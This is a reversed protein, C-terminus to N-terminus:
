GLEDQLAEFSLHGRDEAVHHRILKVQDGGDQLQHTQVPKHSTRREPVNPEEGGNAKGQHSVGRHKEALNWVAAVDDVDGVYDYARPGCPKEELVSAGRDRVDGGHDEGALGGDHQIAGPEGVDVVHSRPRRDVRFGIRAPEIREGECGEEGGAHDHAAEPEQHGLEAPHQGLLRAGIRKGSGQVASGHLFGGEALGRAAYAVAASQAHDHEVNVVELKEVVGAPMRGSVAGQLGQNTLYLCHQALIVENCPGTAFLEGDQQRFRGGGSADNGRLADALGDFCQHHGEFTSGDLEGDAGAYGLEVGGLATPFGHHAAGVGGHVYGLFMATSPEGRVLNM